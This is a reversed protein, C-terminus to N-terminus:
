NISYSTKNDYFVTEKGCLSEYSAIEVYGDTLITDLDLTTNSTSPLFYLKHVVGREKLILLFTWFDIPDGIKDKTKM